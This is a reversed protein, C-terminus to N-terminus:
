FLVIKRIGFLGTDSTLKLFYVGSPNGVVNWVATHEGASQFQNNVLVAIRRGITDYVELTVSCANPLKYTLTTHREFPNPYNPELQFSDDPVPLGEIGTSHLVKGLYVGSAVPSERQDIAAWISGDFTHLIARVPTTGLGDSPLTHWSVGDNCSVRAGGDTALLLGSNKDRCISRVSTNMGVGRCPMWNAGHERSVYLGANDTGAWIANDEVLLAIVKKGALAAFSTWSAGGDGSMALGGYAHGGLLYRGLGVYVVTDESVIFVARVDNMPLGNNTTIVRWSAGADKSMFLGGGFNPHDAVTGVWVMESQSAVCTVSASNGGPLAVRSWTKGVDCSRFLGAGDSGVWITGDSGIHITLIPKNGFYESNFNTINGDEDIRSLGTYTGLWVTGDPALALCNCVNHILGDQTSVRVWLVDMSNQERSLSPFTVLALLLIVIKRYGTTKLTFLGKMIEGATLILM